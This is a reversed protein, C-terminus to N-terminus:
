AAWAKATAKIQKRLREVRAVLSHFDYGPQYSIKIEYTGDPNGICDVWYLQLIVGAMDLAHVPAAIVGDRDPHLVEHSPEWTRGLMESMAMIVAEKHSAAEIKSAKYMTLDPNM